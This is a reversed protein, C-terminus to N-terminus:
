KGKRLRRDGGGRLPLDHCVVVFLGDLGFDLALVQIGRPERRLVDVVRYSTSPGTRVNVSSTAVAGAAFAATASGLLVTASLGLLKLKTSLM